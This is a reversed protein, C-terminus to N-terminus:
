AGHEIRKAGNRKQHAIVKGIFHVDTESIYEFEAGVIFLDSNELPIQEIVWISTALVLIPQHGPPQIELRFVQGMPPLERCYFSAGVQSLSKTEGTFEGNGTIVTTPWKVEIREFRRRDREIVMISARVQQFTQLCNFPQRGAEAESPLAAM